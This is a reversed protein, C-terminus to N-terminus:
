FTFVRTLRRLACKEPHGFQVQTVRFLDLKLVLLGERPDIWPSPLCGGCGVCCDALLHVLSEQEFGWCGMVVVVHIVVM